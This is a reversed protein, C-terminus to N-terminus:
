ELLPDVEPVMEEQIPQVESAMTEAIQKSKELVSKYVRDFLLEKATHSVFVSDENSLQLGGSQAREEHISKQMRKTYQRIINSISHESVKM